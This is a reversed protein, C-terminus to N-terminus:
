ILIANAIKYILNIRKKYIYMEDWIVYNDHIIYNSM